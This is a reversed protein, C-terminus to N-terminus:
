SCTSSPSRIPRATPFSHWKGPQTPDDRRILRSLWSQPACQRPWTTPQRLIADRVTFAVRIAKSTQDPTFDTMPVLGTSAKPDLNTRTRKSQVGETANQKEGKLPEIGELLNAQEAVEHKTVKRQGYAVSCWLVAIIALNLIALSTLNLFVTITALTRVANRQM